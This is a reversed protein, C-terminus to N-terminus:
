ACSTGLMTSSDTPSTTRTGHERLGSVAAALGATAAPDGQDAGLGPASWTMNPERCRASVGPRTPASCPSCSAPPPPMVSITPPVPPWRGLGGFPKPAWGSLVPMRSRGAPMGCRTRWRGAPPPLSGEALHVMAQDQPDESARLDRLVALVTGADDADGRLAALWAQYCTLLGGDALGDSDSAGTLVDDAADWDGLMLLAQVLNGIAFPLMGRDGARRLHGAASRAAEAAAAPDTVALPDSLNTLVGGLRAKEGTPAALRAAEGLYAVSEARRGAGALYIARLVMLDILQDAGVDVDQGITLAETTLQDADPSGVSVELMTLQALGRVTDSDPDARLVGVASTLQDRAEAHRGALRLARGVTAQSRAASRAQGLQLYHERARGAHQTATLEQGRQRTRRVDEEGDPKRRNSWRKRGRGTPDLRIIVLYLHKLAALETPFHGRANVSRRFRPRAAAVESCSQVGVVGCCPASRFARGGGM